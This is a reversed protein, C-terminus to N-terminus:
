WLVEPEPPARRPRGGFGGLQAVWTVAQGLSPLEPLPQPVRHIAGYLAQWDDPELLVSCPAEPVPRWCPPRCFGGRWCVTSPWRASCVSLHRPPCWTLPCFRLALTAERAPQTTRRPVHVVIESVMPQAEVAAWVYRQPTSVCRDWAARMVLEVGELREAVLVDYIDAERDGVSVLRTTPCCARATGVAELSPLWKQSEKQSM